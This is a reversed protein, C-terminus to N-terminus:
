RSRRRTSRRPFTESLILETLESQEFGFQLGLGVLDPYKIMVPRNTTYGVRWRLGSGEHDVLRQHVDYM